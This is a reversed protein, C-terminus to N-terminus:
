NSPASAAVGQLLAGGELEHVPKCINDRSLEPARHACPQCNALVDPLTEGEANERLQIADFNSYGQKM